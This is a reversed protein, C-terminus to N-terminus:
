RSVVEVEREVEPLVKVPIGWVDEENPNTILRTCCELVGEISTDAFSQIILELYNGWCPTGDYNVHGCQFVDGEYNIQRSLNMIRVSSDPDSEGILTKLNIIILMSGINRKSGFVENATNLNKTVAVIRGGDEDSIFVRDFLNDEENLRNIDDLIKKIVDDNRLIDYKEKIRKQKIIISNMARNLAEIEDNLTKALNTREDNLVSSIQLIAKEESSVENPPTIHSQLLSVEEPEEIYEDEYEGDEEYELDDKVEYNRGGETALTETLMQSLPIDRTFLSSFNMSPLTFSHNYDFSINFPLSGNFLHKAIIDIMFESKADPFGIVISEKSNNCFVQTHIIFDSQLFDEHINDPNIGYEPPIIIERM